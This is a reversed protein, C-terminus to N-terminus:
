EAPPWCGLTSMWVMRGVSRGGLEPEGGGELEEGSREAPAMAPMTM